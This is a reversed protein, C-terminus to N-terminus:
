TSQTVLGKLLGRIAVGSVTDQKEPHGEYCVRRYALGQSISYLSEAIQHASIGEEPILEGSQIASAIFETIWEYKLYSFSQNTYALDENEQRDLLYIMKFHDPHNDWYRVYAMCFHQLKDIANKHKGAAKHCYTFSTLFIDDWIDQLIDRKNKYHHYLVGVSCPVKSAIKRMSVGQYGEEIFLVRAVSAIKARTDGTDPDSLKPRGRGRTPKAQEIVKHEKM